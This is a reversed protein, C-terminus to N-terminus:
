QHPVQCWIGKDRIDDDVIAMWLLWPRRSMWDMNIQVHINDQLTPDVCYICSLHISAHSGSLRSTWESSTWPVLSNRPAMIECANCIQSGIQASRSYRVSAPFSLLLWPAWAVFNQTFNRTSAVTLQQAKAERKTPSWQRPYSTTRRSFITLMLSFCDIGLLRLYQEYQLPSQPISALWPFITTSTHKHCAKPAQWGGPQM